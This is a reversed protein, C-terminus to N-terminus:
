TYIYEEPDCGSQIGIKQPRLIEFGNQYNLYDQPIILKYGNKPDKKFFIELLIANFFKKPAYVYQLAISTSSNILSTM